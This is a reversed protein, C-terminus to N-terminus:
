RSFLWPFVFFFLFFFKCYNSSAFVSLSVSFFSPSLESYNNDQSITQKVGLRDNVRGDLGGVLWKVLSSRSSMREVKIIESPTEHM